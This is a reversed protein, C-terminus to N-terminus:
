DRRYFQRGRGGKWLTEKTNSNQGRDEAPNTPRNELVAARMGDLESIRAVYDRPGTAQKNVVPAFIHQKHFFVNM